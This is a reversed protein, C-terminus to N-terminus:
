IQQLPLMSRTKQISNSPSVKNMPALLMSWSKQISHQIWIFQAVYEYNQQSDANVEDKPNLAAKVAKCPEALGTVNFLESL